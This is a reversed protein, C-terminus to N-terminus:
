NNTQIKEVPITTNNASSTGNKLSSLYQELEKNQPALYFAREAYSIAEVQNGESKAIQSLIILTDILDPKLALASNAYDKASKIDKGAFSVRTLDLKIGPNMPNLMSAKSYSDVAKEFAGSVGFPIVSEYISGLLRFNLYNMSNYQVALQASNVAQDLTAQLEAKEVETLSDGKSILSNLKILYVQAYTRLYLDNSHLLVAKGISFQASDISESSLTKQFYAISTFREIYKFGAAASAIMIIVLLFISFFSKRPDTLFSITILEKQKNVTSLAIFIGLFTFALLVIVPGVTYFFLTIFLYLTLIFSIATEINIGNRKQVSFISKIGALILLVLFVLWAIAGLIGTTIIQTPLFGSGSNFSVDWFGTANIVSPKYINWMETFRNPGAGLIPDKILTDKAVSMTTMFSPRVELNSIGFKNPLFGGIFQGAVFFLLALM